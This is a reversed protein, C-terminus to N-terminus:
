RVLLWSPGYCRRDDSLGGGPGRAVDIMLCVVM